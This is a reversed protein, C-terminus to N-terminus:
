PVPSGEQRGAKVWGSCALPPTVTWSQMSSFFTEGCQLVLFSIPSNSADYETRQPFGDMGAYCLLPVLIDTDDLVLVTDRQRASAVAGHKM